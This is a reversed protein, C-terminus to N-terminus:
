ASTGYSCVSTLTALFTCSVLDLGPVSCDSSLLTPWVLEEESPGGYGGTPMLGKALPLCHFGSHGAERASDPLLSSLVESEGSFLNVALSLARVWGRIRSPVASLGHFSSLVCGCNGNTMELSSILRLVKRVRPNDGAGSLYDRM